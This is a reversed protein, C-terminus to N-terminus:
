AATVEGRITADRVSRKEEVTLWCRDLHGKEEVRNELGPEDHQAATETM